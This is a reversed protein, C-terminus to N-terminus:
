QQEDLRRLLERNFDDLRQLHDKIEDLDSAAAVPAPGFEKGGSALFFEIQKRSYGQERHMKQITRLIAVADESFLNYEAANKELRLHDKFDRIWNRIIHVSEGLLNAVENVKLKM